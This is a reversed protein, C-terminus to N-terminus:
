RKIGKGPNPRIRRWGKGKLRAQVEGGLIRRFPALPLRHKAGRRTAGLYLECISSWSLRFALVSNPGAYVWGRPRRAFSGTKCAGGLM